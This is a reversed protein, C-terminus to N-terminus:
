PRSPRGALRWQEFSEHFEGFTADGTIAFIVRDFSHKFRAHDELLLRAWLRAVMGIDNNFVGTGFAGLVINRIGKAEFLFLIRGMRELMEKEVRTKAGTTNTTRGSLVEGANVAASSVVEIRYPPIPESNDNQFVVVAPSYIMSHTYFPSRDHEHAAYFKKAAPTQLSHYLTSVRALSEEQAQAGNRFGGGPKTASAFNLVGISPAAAGEPNFRATSELLKAAAVTSIKLVSIQTQNSRSRVHDNPQRWEVLRRSNASWFETGNSSEEMLPRLNCTENRYTYEGQKIIKMANEAVKKLRERRSHKRNSKSSSHPHNDSESGSDSSSADGSSVSNWFTGAVFSTAAMVLGPLMPTLRSHDFSQDRPQPTEM